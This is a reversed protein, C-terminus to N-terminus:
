SVGFLDAINLVANPQALPSISEGVKATRQWGYHGDAAIERMIYICKGQVDVVWYEQIGAEAYLDAKITRDSKLSSDAVEVALLTDAGTPHSKLYRRAKVWFVDPELCSDLHPLELGTQCRVQIESGVAARCSWENLYTIFDDHVPGAPNMEVIEGRILEVKRNIAEFAGCAVMHNYETLTLHLKMIM